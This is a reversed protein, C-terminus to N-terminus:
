KIQSKPLLSDKLVYEQVEKYRQPTGIDKVYEETVYGFLKKGKELMKVFVDKTFDVEKDKKIFNIVSKKLIYVSTKTLNGYKQWQEGPREKISLLKNKNDIEVIASDQPHDSMHLAMTVDAKNEKHFKFMKRLNITSYIDGFLVFFESELSNKILHLAGATGLPKEEISLKIPIDYNNEKIYKILKNGLHGGCIIINNCGNKRLYSISYDILPKNSLPLLAKPMTTTIPSIRTGKGGAIIIAQM